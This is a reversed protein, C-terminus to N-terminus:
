YRGAADLDDLLPRLGRARGPGANSLPRALSRQDSFPSVVGILTELPPSLPETEELRSLEDLGGATGTFDEECEGADDYHCDRLYALITSHTAM